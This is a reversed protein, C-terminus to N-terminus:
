LREGDRKASLMPSARAFDSRGVISRSRSVAEAVCFEDISLGSAVRNELREQWYLYDDLTPGPRGPKGM